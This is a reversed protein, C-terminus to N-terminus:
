GLRSGSGAAAPHIPGKMHSSSFLVRVGAHGAACVPQGAWRWLWWCGEPGRRGVLLHGSAESCGVFRCPCSSAVRATFQPLPRSMPPWPEGLEAPASGLQLLQALVARVTGHGIGPLVGACPWREWLAQVLTQPLWAHGELTTGPSSPESPM